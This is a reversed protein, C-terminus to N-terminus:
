DLSLRLSLGLEHPLPTAGPLPSAGQSAVASGVSQDPKPGADRGSSGDLFDAIFGVVADPAEMQPIHDVGELVRLRANPFLSAIHQGQALPTTGDERGWIVLVPKDFARYNEFKAAASKREDGYLGNVVWNGISEASRKVRLPRAYLEIRQPTILADDHVFARLGYGIMMPNAFTASSALTRLWSVGLVSQFPASGPQADLGLAVDLLVLGDIRDPAAFAAELAGGGGYSHVGITFTELGISDAFALIRKAAAARGYNQNAPKSTYGFPPMDIAIVRFGREGLPEAIDRWTQAWSLTGHILLLPKGDPPGWTVYHMDVDDARAYLEGAGAAREPFSDERLYTAVRLGGLGLAGAAVLALLLGAVIRCILRM